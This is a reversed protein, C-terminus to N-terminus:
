RKADLWAILKQPSLRTEEDAIHISAGAALYPWVEWVTADFALGAVQTARDAASIQYVRQHWRILNMLSGHTVMVGKPTGTSGSTYICYCPHRPDFGRISDPDSGHSQDTYDTTSLGEPTLIVAPKADDIMFQLRESPYSPDLPVYAGGVKLVGLMGIVLELSREVCLGVLVEPGVGL